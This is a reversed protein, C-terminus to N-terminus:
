SQTRFFQSASGGKCLLLTSGFSNKRTEGKVQTKTELAVSQNLMFRDHLAVGQKILGNLHRVDGPGQLFHRRSRARSSKTKIEIFEEPKENSLAEIKM